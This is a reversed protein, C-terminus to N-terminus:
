AVPPDPMLRSHVLRREASLADRQRNWEEDPPPARGIGGTGSRARGRPHAEGQAILPVDRPGSNRPPAGLNVDDQHAPSCGAMRLHGMLSV